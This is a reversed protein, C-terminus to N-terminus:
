FVTINQNDAGVLLKNMTTQGIGRAPYNIIRLLAEEDSENILLRLYAVLDKVEKRQFFSIGGFVRYPINKKRLAEELARSQANTRYLISFDSYKLQENLSEDFIKSAVYRAENEDSKMKFSVRASNLRIM